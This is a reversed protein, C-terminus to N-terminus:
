KAKQKGQKKKGGTIEGWDVVFSREAWENYMRLLDKAIEAREQSLDHMETRDEKLNYLEWKGPYRSVLKWDGKRVARNGEHEWFIGEPREIPRDDFAAVLSRGQMPIIKNGKYEAPYKAGSVDVSTAMIDILHGPQRRLEGKSKV